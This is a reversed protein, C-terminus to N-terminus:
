SRDTDLYRQYGRDNIRPVVVPDPAYNFKSGLIDILNLGNRKLWNRKGATVLVNSVLISDLLTIRQRSHGV